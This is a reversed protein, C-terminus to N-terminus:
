DWGLSPAKRSIERLSKIHFTTVVDTNDRRVGVFAVKANGSGGVVKVYGNMEPVWTGTKIVHNADDIYDELNYSARGLVQMVESGHRAFHEFAENGAFFKYQNTVARLVFTNKVFKTIIPVSALIGLGLM